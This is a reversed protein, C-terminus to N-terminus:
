SSLYSQVCEELVEQIARVAFGSKKLKETSLILNTRVLPLEKYSIVEYSYEPVHKRYIDLLESYVLAGDNVLNYLGRADRSLLHKLARIFDPIYTVSNAADIVRSFRLLKSLLNRPHPRDDLPIRLRPILINGGGREQMAGLAREAYIKTRSYYLDFFDPVKEETLPPDKEYDYHYICGSSLHVYKIKARLAAEALIIPVYTNAFLAADPGVECDDVNSKGTHGICNILIDPSQSAIEDQADALSTIRRKSMVGGLESCIRSGIYGNGLLLIKNGM